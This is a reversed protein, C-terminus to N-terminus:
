ASLLRARQREFEEPTLAGKDRLATLESLKDAVYGAQIQEYEPRQMDLEAPRVLFYVLTGVIPFLIIGFLWAVKAIGRLDRRNFLDVVAFAWIMFIPIVIFMVFLVSWFVDWDM